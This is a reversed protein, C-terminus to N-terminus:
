IGQITNMLSGMPHGDCLVTLIIVEDTEGEGEGLTAAKYQFEKGLESKFWELKAPLGLVLFDDVHVSILMKRREHRFVCPNARGPRFGLRALVKTIHEQWDM